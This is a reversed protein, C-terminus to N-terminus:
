SLGCAPKVVSPLQEQIVGVSSLLAQTLYLGCYVVILCTRLPLYQTSDHINDHPYHFYPLIAGLAPISGVDRTHRALTSVVVGGLSASTMVRDIGVLRHPEMGSDSLDTCVVVINICISLCKKTM